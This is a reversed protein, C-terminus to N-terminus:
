DVIVPFPKGTEVACTAVEDASGEGTNRVSHLAILPTRRGRSGDSSGVGGFGCKCRTNGPRRNPATVSSAAALVM